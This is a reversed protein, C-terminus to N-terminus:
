GFEVKIKTFTIKHKEGSTKVGHHGLITLKGKNHLENYDSLTVIEGKNLKEGYERQMDEITYGTKKFGFTENVPKQKENLTNVLATITIRHKLKDRNKIVFKLIDKNMVLPSFIEEYIKDPNKTAEEWTHIKTTSKKSKMRKLEKKLQDRKFGTWSDKLRKPTQGKMAQTFDKDFQKKNKYKGQAM